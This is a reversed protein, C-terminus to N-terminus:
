ELIGRKANFDRFYPIAAACIIFGIGILEIPNPREHFFLGGFLVGFVLELLGLIGAAGADILKIGKVFSWSAIISALAFFLLYLWQIQWHFSPYQRGLIEVMVANGVIGSAWLVITSQTSNYKIQKSFVSNAAGALGSAFAGLLAVLGAGTLTPSFILSIGVIGLVASFAKDKTFKEAAFLWGFFFMGVVIGAYQISLSIGVGATLIAFYYPGWNLISALIMGIIYKWNKGLRLPELQGSPIAFILLIGVVIASRFVSVTFGDFFNGLLKTWIGYTGYFFSSIVVLTAGLPASIKKPKITM